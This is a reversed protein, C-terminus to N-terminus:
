QPKFVGSRGNEKGEKTKRVMDSVYGTTTDYEKRNKRVTELKMRWELFEPKQCHDSCAPYRDRCDKCPPEDRVTRMPRPM